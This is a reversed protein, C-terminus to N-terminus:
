AKGSASPDGDFSGGCVEVIIRLSESFLILEKTCPSVFPLMTM